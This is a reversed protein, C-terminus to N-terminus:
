PIQWRTVLERGQAEGLQYAAVLGDETATTYDVGLDRLDRPPQVVHIPRDLVHAPLQETGFLDRYLPGHEAAIAVVAECPGAEGVEVAPCMCTYSADVYARGAVWAPVTWAHLMRTSAYAVSDFNAASLRDEMGATASDFLQLSLNADAWSRDGRAASVLLRRGLTRAGAGQTQAAAEATVVANAAVIFRPTSPEFLRVHIRPGYDAICQLVVDSMGAGPRDLVRRARLWYDVGVERAIGVAAFAGAAVSASAAAYTSGSLGAEEFASLVGHIFVCKFGGSGCAVAVRTM